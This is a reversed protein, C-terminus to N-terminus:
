KWTAHTKLKKNLPRPITKWLYEVRLTLWWFQIAIRFGQLFKWWRGSM